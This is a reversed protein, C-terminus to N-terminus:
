PSDEAPAPPALGPLGPLEAPAPAPEQERFRTQFADLNVPLREATELGLRYVIPSGAARVAVGEPTAKGLHVEALRPASPPLPEGGKEAKEAEAPAAPAAGFVTIITNPPSLGLKELEQEGMSEALIDDAELQSLESVVSALQDPAFPEPSSTWGAEGTREAHIAVPDGTPSHFFFDLQQADTAAFTSLRRDRYAAVKRPFDALQAAPIEYLADGSARVLRKDGTEPRSVALAIPAAQADSGGLTVAFDPPDLLARQAASPADVFGDARLFSLTALLSDIAEGDAPAALPATMQWEGGGEPPKEEGEPKAERALAVRGGPWTAEVTRIATPDFSVIQKDRLDALTRAFATARYGAITHVPAGGDARVYVNSGVPTNRGIRLVHEAGDAGFRIVKATDALGYEADPQPSEYTAESTVTALAEAMRGVAADAPFAIPAVIQWKGDRLEFRADAGDSTHLAIWTVDSAEVDPFLRKTAQEAELRGAEGGVEYFWLFAGLALAALLLLGTTRPNM